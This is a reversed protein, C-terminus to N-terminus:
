SADIGLDGLHEGLEGVLRLLETEAVKADFRAGILRASADLFIRQTDRLEVSTIASLRYQEFAIRLAEVALELNEEELEVLRMANSYSTLETRLEVELRARLEDRQIRQSEAGIEAIRARSRQAGGDFLPVSAALGVFFGNTAGPLAGGSRPDDRLLDYGVGLRVLPLRERRATTHELEAMRLLHDAADLERNGSEFRALIAEPDLEGPLPIEPDVEFPEHGPIGTLEVLVLRTREVVAEQRLVEARDTNLDTQAVIVNYETMAGLERMRRAIRLREESFDVADELAALLHQERAIAYYAEVIDRATREVEVRLEVTGLREQERYRSRNSFSALGDFITWELGVSAELVNASARIRQDDGPVRTWSEDSEVFGSASASLQPFFVSRAASGEARDQEVRNHALRIGHNRELGAELAEELTLVPVSSEQAFGAGATMLVLAAALTIIYTM